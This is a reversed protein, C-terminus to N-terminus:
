GRMRCLADVFQMNEVVEERCRSVDKTVMSLTALATQYDAEPAPEGGDPSLSHALADAVSLCAALQAADTGTAAGPDHHFRVGAAFQPSFKWRELLRAGVEAHDLGFSARELEVLTAGVIKPDNQLEIYDSRFAEALVLKGIDHLLGATFFFGADARIRKAIMQAAFATTAAHRWQRGVDIGTAQAARFAPDGSAMAVICYVIQFGLRSVADRVHDVPRSVGFYASNCTQLVKATLAPDLAIMDVVRSVDTDIDTLAVLLPGLIKPAPPLNEIQNLFEDIKDM